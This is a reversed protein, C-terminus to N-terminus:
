VIDLGSVANWLSCIKQTWSSSESCRNCRKLERLILAVDFKNDIAM